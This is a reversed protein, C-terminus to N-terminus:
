TIPFEESIDWFLCKKVAGETGVNATIHPSSCLACINGPNTAVYIKSSDYRISM